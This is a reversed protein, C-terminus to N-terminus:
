AAVTDTNSEILRLLRAATNTFTRDSIATRAAAVAAARETDHELWWRLQGAFEQPTTITPLMSLIEDSEGRPERFFFTGCAALEVERPGMAWGDAHADDSHEKRYLNISAKTSRYVKSTTANDMCQEPPHLLLKNLPSEATLERWNGGLVANIGSWDVQELWEIRSPFGTGVFAFDSVLGPEIPGPKHRDPDYSHPLYHTNPNIEARFQDINTPDNLIVTDAYRAARAQRDDEYPSETCWYVLHHPRRSLIAWVEPPVYFGSVIIVIDPWWEYCVVEIGKAAMKMAAQMEFARIFEGNDREVHARSYFEIRDDLNLIGVEVGNARLGKILGDYVDAVSFHPGPHVILAKM